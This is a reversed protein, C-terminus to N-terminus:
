PESLSELDLLPCSSKNIHAQALGALCVRGWPWGISHVSLMMLLRSLLPPLSPGLSEGRPETVDERAEEERM